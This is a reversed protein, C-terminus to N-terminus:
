LTTVKGGSGGAGASPSAAANRNACHQCRPRGQEQERKITNLVEMLEVREEHMKELDQRRQMEIDLLM